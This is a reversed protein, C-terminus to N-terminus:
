DTTKAVAEAAAKQEEATMQNPGLKYTLKGITGNFRFPLKYSNDV